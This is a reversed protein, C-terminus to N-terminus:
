LPTGPNILILPAQMRNLTPWASPQMKNFSKNLDISLDPRKNFDISLDQRAQEQEVVKNQNLLPSMQSFNLSKKEVQAHTLDSLNKLRQMEEFENTIRQVKELVQLHAQTLM